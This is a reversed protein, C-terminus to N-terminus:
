FVVSQGGGHWLKCIKTECQVRPALRGDHADDHGDNDNDNANDDDNDDDDDDNRANGNVRRSMM